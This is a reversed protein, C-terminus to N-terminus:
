LPKTIIHDWKDVVPWCGPVRYVVFTSDKWLIEYEHFVYGTADDCHPPSILCIEGVKPRYTNDTGKM